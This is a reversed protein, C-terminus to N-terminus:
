EDKFVKKLEELSIRVGNLHFADLESFHNRYNGAFLLRNDKVDFVFTSKLNFVVDTEILNVFLSEAIAVQKGVPTSYILTVQSQNNEVSNKNTFIFISDAFLFPGVAFLKFLAFKINLLGDGKKLRGIM